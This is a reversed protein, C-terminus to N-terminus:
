WRTKEKEKLSEGDEQMREAVAETRVAVALITVFIAEQQWKCTSEHM